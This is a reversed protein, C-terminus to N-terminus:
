CQPTVQNWDQAVLNAPSGFELPCLRYRVFKEPMPKSIELMIFARESFLENTEFRGMKCFVFSM